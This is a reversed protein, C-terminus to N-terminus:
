DDGLLLPLWAGLAAAAGGSGGQLIPLICSTWVVNGLYAYGTVSPHLRDFVTTWSSNWGAVMQNYIDCLAVNKAAALQRIATNVAPINKFESGPTTDPTLTGMIPVSGFARIRDVILGLNTTISPISLGALRDNTGEFFPVYNPNSRVLVSNIRGVATPTIEGSFGFNLVSSPFGAGNLQFALGPIYGGFPLGSDPTPAFPFGQTISDGFAAFTLVQAHSNATPLLLASFM